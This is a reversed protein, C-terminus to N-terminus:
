GVGDPHSADSAVEEPATERAIVKWYTLAASPDPLNVPFLKTDRRPLESQGPLDLRATLQSWQYGIRNWWPYRAPRDNVSNSVESPTPLGQRNLIDKVGPGRALSYASEYREAAKRLATLADEQRDWSVEAYWVKAYIAYYQPLVYFSRERHLERPAREMAEDLVKLLNQTIVFDEYADMTSLYVESLNM